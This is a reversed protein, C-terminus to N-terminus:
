PGGPAAPRRAGDLERDREADEELRADEEARLDAASRGPFGRARQEAAIERAVDALTRRPGPAAVARITVRVSGPPLSSPHSLRLQGNADLTADITEEIASV